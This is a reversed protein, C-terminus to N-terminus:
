PMKVKPNINSSASAGDVVTVANTNTNNSLSADGVSTLYIPNANAGAGDEMRFTLAISNDLANVPRGRWNFNIVTPIAV